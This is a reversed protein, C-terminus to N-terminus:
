QMPPLPAKVSEHSQEFKEQCPLCRLASPQAELRAVPIDTGCDLCEGYSGARMRELATGIDELERNDREQEAARVAGRVREEGQEGLDEVEGQPVGAQAEHAEADLAQVEGRLMAQREQLQKRLRDMENSGLSAM